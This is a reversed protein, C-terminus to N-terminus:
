PLPRVVWHPPGLPVLGPVPVPAPFPFPYPQRVPVPRCGPDPVRGPRWSRPRVPGSRVPKRLPPPPRRPPIPPRAPVPRRAGRGTGSRRCGEAPAPSRRGPAMLGEGPGPGWWGPIPHWPGAPADPGSRGVQCVLSALPIGTLLAVKVASESVSLAERAIRSAQVFRIEQIERAVRGPSGAEAEAPRM